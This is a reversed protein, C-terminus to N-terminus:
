QSQIQSRSQKSNYSFANKESDDNKKILYRTDCVRMVGIQKYLVYYTAKANKYENRYSCFYNRLVQSDLTACLM